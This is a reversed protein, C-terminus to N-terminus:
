SKLGHGINSSLKDIMEGVDGAEQNMIEHEIWQIVDLEDLLSLVLNKYLSVIRGLSSEKRTDGLTQLERSAYTLERELVMAEAKWGDGISEIFALHHSVVKALGSSRSDQVRKTQTFWSNFVELVRTFKGDLDLFSHIDALNRSLQQVREAVQASPVGQCWEVLALQNVLAQQQHSIEKIENHRACLDDFRLRYKMKASNEWEEQRTGASRHMLHMQALETQVRFLPGIVLDGGVQTCSSSAPLDQSPAKKPTFHQQMASFAPKQHQTSAYRQSSTRSVSSSKISKSAHEVQQSVSRGHLAPRGGNPNSHTGSSARPRVSAKCLDESTQQATSFRRAQSPKPPVCTVRSYTCIKSPNSPLFKALSTPPLIGSQSVYTDTSSRTQQPRVENEEELAKLRSPKPQSTTRETLQPLMSRRRSVKTGDGTDTM